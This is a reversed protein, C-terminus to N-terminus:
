SLVMLVKGQMLSIVRHLFAYDVNSYDNSITRKLLSPWLVLIVCRGGQRLDKVNFLKCVLSV